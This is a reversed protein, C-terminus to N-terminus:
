HQWLKKIKNRIFNVGLKWYIINITKFSISYIRFWGYWVCGFTKKGYKPFWYCIEYRFFWILRNKLNNKRKKM